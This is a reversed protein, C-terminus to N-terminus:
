HDGLRGSIGNLMDKRYRHITRSETLLVVLDDPKAAVRALAGLFDSRAGRAAWSRDLWAALEDDNLQPPARMLRGTEQLMMGIYRRLIAAHHGAHDILNAANGILDRKGAQLVRDPNEPAGFRRMSAMLLLAVAAVVQLAILNYPFELLFKLVSPASHHFGHQTEDFVLKGPKGALMAYVIATAFALNDGKGIGHNEIPDPDALVWIRRRGEKLEGLLIGEATAVIPTMKSNKVLQIPSEITPNPIALSNKQFSSPKSIRVVEGSGAVGSLVSRPVYEGLLRAAGIWDDREESRRVDWKPLVLLMTGAGLLNGNSASGSVAGSPEALILIGNSGLQAVVDQEGRVVQYDLRHLIDFFGLHGVASRSYTNAGVLNEGDRHRGAGTLLLSAAFLGLFAAALAAVVRRDFPSKGSM